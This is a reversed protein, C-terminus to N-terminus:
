LLARLASLRSAMEGKKRPCREVKVAAAITNWEAEIDARTRVPQGTAVAVQVRQMDDLITQKQGNTKAGRLQERLAALRSEPTGDPGTFGGKAAPAPQPVPAPSPAAGTPRSGAAASPTGGNRAQWARILALGEAAGSSRGAPLPSPSPARAAPPASPGGPAFPGLGATKMAEALREGRQYLLPLCRPDPLMGTARTSATVALIAQHLAEEEQM